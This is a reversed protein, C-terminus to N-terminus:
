NLHLHTKTMIWPSLEFVFLINIVIVNMFFLIINCNYLIIFTYLINNFLINICIHIYIPNNYSFQRQSAKLLMKHCFSERYFSFTRSGPFHRIM